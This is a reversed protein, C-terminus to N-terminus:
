KQMLQFQVRTSQSLENDQMSVTLRDDGMQMTLSALHGMVTPSGMIEWGLAELETILYETTEKVMMPVLYVYTGSAETIEIDFADPHVVLVDPFTVETEEVPNSATTEGNDGSETTVKGSSSGGNDTDVVTTEGGGCGSVIFILGIALALIGLLKTIKRTNM